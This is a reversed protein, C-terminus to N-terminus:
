LQGMDESGRTILANVHGSDKMTKGADLHIQQVLEDVEVIGASIGSLSSAEQEVGKAIEQVALVVTSSIQRTGTINENSSKISANLQHSFMSVADMSKELMRYLQFAEQEKQNSAEILSKGWKTLFYLYVVACDLLAIRLVFDSIEWNDGLVSAPAITFALILVGNLSAAYWLLIDKRFYLASSIITAPFVLFFRPAGNESILLTLAIATPAMSILVGVIIEPLFNRLHAFYIGTGILCTVIIILSIRIGTDWGHMFPAEIAFVTSCALLILFNIRTIQHFGFRVKLQM